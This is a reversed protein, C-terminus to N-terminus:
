KPGRRTSGLKKKWEKDLENFVEVILGQYFVIVESGVLLEEGDQVGEGHGDKGNAAHNPRQQHAFQDGLVAPWHARDIPHLLSPEIAQDHLSGHRRLCSLSVPSIWQAPTWLPREWPSWCFRWSAKWPWQPVSWLLFVSLHARQKESNMWCSCQHLFWLFKQGNKIM